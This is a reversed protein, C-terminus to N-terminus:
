KDLSQFTDLHCGCPTLECRPEFFTLLLMRHIVRALICGPLSVVVLGVFIKRLELMFGKLLRETPRALDFFM